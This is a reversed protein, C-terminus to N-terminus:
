SRRLRVLKAGDDNMPIAEIVQHAHAKLWEDVVDRMVGRGKGHVVLVETQRNRVADEMYRRMREEGVHHRLGHLDLTPTNPERRGPGWDGTRISKGKGKM